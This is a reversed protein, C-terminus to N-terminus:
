FGKPFEGPFIGYDVMQTEPLTLYRHLFLL